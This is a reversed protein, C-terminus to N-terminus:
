HASQERILCEPCIKRVKASLYPRFQIAQKCGACEGVANDKFDSPEDALICVVCADPDGDEGPLAEIIGFGAERLLEEADEEPIDHHEAYEQVTRRSVVHENGRADKNRVKDIILDLIKQDTM